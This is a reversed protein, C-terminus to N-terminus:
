TIANVVGTEYISKYIKEPYLPLYKDFDKKTINQKRIYSTLFDSLEESDVESYDYIDKLLELLQLITVNEKTIKTRAKRIIFNRGAITDKKLPNGIENSVIERTFPNQTSIGLINAFTAGSYFGFVRNNRSIYKSKAIKDPSLPLEYGLISKQPIYYIGNEARSLLGSDTLTKFQRRRNTASLGLDIDSAVIPEGPQYNESLFKWLM